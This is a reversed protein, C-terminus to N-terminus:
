STPNKGRRKNNTNKFYYFPFFSHLSKAEQKRPECGSTDERQPKNVNWGASHTHRWSWSGEPLKLETEGTVM